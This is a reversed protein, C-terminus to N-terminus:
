LLHLANDERLDKCECHVIAVFDKINWVSSQM